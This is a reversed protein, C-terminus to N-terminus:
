SKLITEELGKEFKESEAMANGIQKDNAREQFEKSFQYVMCSADTVPVVPSNKFQSEKMLKFREMTMHKGMMKGIRYATAFSEQYGAEFGEQLRSEAHDDYAQLFAVKEIEDQQSILEHKGLNGYEDGDDSQNGFFDDDDDNDFGPDTTLETM